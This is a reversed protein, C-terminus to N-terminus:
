INTKEETISRVIVDNPNAADKSYNGHEIRDNIDLLALLYLIRTALYYPDTAAKRIREELSKRLESYTARKTEAYEESEVETYVDSM